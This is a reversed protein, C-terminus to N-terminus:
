EAARATAHQAFKPMVERALLTMGEREWAANPGAWDMGTQLLAGFPGVRERFAVLKDVVTKPSGYIVCEKLIAEPTTEEDSMKPDPKLIPLIGVRNLVDRIYTFFYRNSGDPGFVRDEAEADTPAVVVSRSVRWTSGDPKKGVEACAKTYVQWHSAVSYVPIINASIMGWGQQAATAASSSFPSALSICFPPHPSQYPKPMFGVGLEPMIADKIQIDWFEGKLEYPPDQTWIKKIFNGAEVVMRNRAAPDNLKFLEFDSVLGGPGIGLLLRGKSMHDLQAAEAAVIAPHHNPINIVATGLKIQKTRSVLGALFMLPSPFPETTATFHEGMWVEEYGLQDALISKETDEELTSWMPRGPPHVPMMFM